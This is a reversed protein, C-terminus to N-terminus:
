TEGDRGWVPLRRALELEAPALPGADLSALAEDIHEPAGFGILASSVAEHGLVFRLAWRSPEVGAEKAFRAIRDRDRRYLELPFFKTKHTHESPLQGLLAGAAYVRIAFVGMRYRACEEFLNGYDTEDFGYPISRGASPNLLNYPAQITDFAGSRIVEKLADPQGIGTLGIHRLRGESRLETLAELVGRPGLVDRPTVSTPEDGRQATISNHLQVLTVREFGLRELSGELSARVSGEVDDLQEPMLRVKTAVHAESAVDSERLAIGLNRESAGSGYTAATDFWNIGLRLAREVVAQQAARDSGTMLASVPGAGFSVASVDIGTAGLPRYQM